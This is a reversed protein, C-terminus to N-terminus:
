LRKSASTQIVEPCYSNATARIARSEKRSSVSSWSQSIAAGVCSPSRRHLFLARSKTDLLNGEVLYRHDIRTRAISRHELADDLISALNAAIPREGHDSFRDGAAVGKIQDTTLFPQLGIARKPLRLYGDSGSSSWPCCRPRSCACLRKPRRTPYAASASPHQSSSVALCRAARRWGAFSATRRAWSTASMFGKLFGDKGMKQLSKSAEAYAAYGKTAKFHDGMIEYHELISDLYTGLYQAAHAEATDGNATCYCFDCTMPPPAATGHLEAYRARHKEVSPLRHEWSRDAFMVMRARIRAASEVSDESSAVAYLRDEFSREPQPRIPIRPQPYFTGNGEMYGTKLADLILAARKAFFSTSEDAGFAARSDSILPM